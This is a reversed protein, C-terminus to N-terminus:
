KAGRVLENIRDAPVAYVIRGAAETPGGWIVGVVRGQGDLVPSGSSGHGAFADIQLLDKIAKSVTGTTMTTKAVLDNGTGEMPADTGLPFGLTAIATGVPVDAAPAIGRVAPYTGADDVQVLALDVDHDVALRVVHAAHWARTDAFKVSIRSARVGASDSVVHRNTVILGSPSVSFGTAEYGQAGIQSAILVIAANNADRVAPLGMGTLQQQIQRARALAQQATDATAGRAVRVATLLSDYRRAYDNTAATDSMGQLRAQFDRAEQQSSAVLRAIAADRRGADRRVMWIAAAAIVVFAALAAAVAIKLGRTQEAVAIAVREATPRRPPVANVANVTDVAPRPATASVVDAKRPPGVAVRPGEAGFAIVDGDRLEHSAGAPVRTGNVFTGNTSDHDTILYRGREARIEAHHTSVDLDRQADFRLDSDPHRGVTVLTQGFSQSEGARAGSLIRLELPM